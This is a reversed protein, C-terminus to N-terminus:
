IEGFNDWLPELAPFDLRVVTHCIVYCSSDARSAFFRSPDRSAYGLTTAFRALKSTSFKAAMPCGSLQDPRTLASLLRKHASGSRCLENSM